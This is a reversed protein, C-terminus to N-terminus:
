AGDMNPLWATCRALGWGKGPKFSRWTERAATESYNGGGASWDNFADFGLGAAQAAMGARVWSDRELDPPISHLADIARDTDNLM